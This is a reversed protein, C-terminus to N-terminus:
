KNSYPKTHIYIDINDSIIPNYKQDFKNNQYKNMYFKNWITEYDENSELLYCGDTFAYKFDTFSTNSNNVFLPKINTYNKESKEYSQCNNFSTHTNTKDNCNYIDEYNSLQYNKNSQATEKFDDSTYGDNNDFENFKVNNPNCQNFIENFNDKNINKNISIDNESSKVYNNFNNKLIPHSKENNENLEIRLLIENYAANILQYKKINGGKDPHHKLLLNRYAKTIVKIDNTNPKIGLIKFPCYKKFINSQYINNPKM